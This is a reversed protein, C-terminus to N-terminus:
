NSKRPLKKKGRKKSKKCHGDRSTSGALQRSHHPTGPVQEQSTAKGSSKFPSICPKDDEVGHKDDKDAKDKKGKKPKHGSKHSGRPRSSKGGKSCM